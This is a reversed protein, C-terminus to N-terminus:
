GVNSITDFAHNTATDIVAVMGNDAITAYATRGDPTFAIASHNEPCDSVVTPRSTPTTDVMVIGDATAQM